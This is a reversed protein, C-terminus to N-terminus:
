ITWVKGNHAGAFLRTDAGFGGTISMLASGDGVATAFDSVVGTTHSVKTVVATSADVAFLDGDLRLTVDGSGNSRSSGDPAEDFPVPLLGQPFSTQTTTTVNDHGSGGCGIAAAFAFLAFIAASDWRM